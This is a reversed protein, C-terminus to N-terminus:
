AVSYRAALERLPRLPARGEHGNDCRVNPPKRLASRGRGDRRSSTIRDGFARHKILNAPIMMLHIM